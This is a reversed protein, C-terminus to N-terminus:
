SWYGNLGSSNKHESAARASFYVILFHNQAISALLRKYWKATPHWFNILWNKQSRSVFFTGPMPSHLTSQNRLGNRQGQGEQVNAPADNRTFVPQNQLIPCFALSKFLPELMLKSCTHMSRASTSIQRTYLHQFAFLLHFIQAMLLECIFVCMHKAVEFDWMSEKTLFVHWM